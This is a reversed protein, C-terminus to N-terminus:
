NFIGNIFKRGKETWVTQMKTCSEGEKNTYQYTETTTYGKNQHDKYLVWTGRQKFQIGLKVLEKNLTIATMGLEKAILTTTYTNKSKLVNEYYDVKPLMKRNEIKLEKNKSSLVMKEEESQVLAKLASLYDTPLMPKSQEKAELEAWRRNVKIRLEASYGTMLDFTQMKTLNMVRIKRGYVTPHDSEMALIEAMSMKLYNANLKDIDALVNKHLKGTVKAIELSSMTTKTEEFRDIMTDM